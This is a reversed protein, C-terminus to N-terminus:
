RSIAPKFDFFYQVSPFLKGLDKLSDDDFELNKAKYSELMLHVNKHIGSETVVHFPLSVILNGWIIVNVHFESRVAIALKTVYDLYLENATKEHKHM